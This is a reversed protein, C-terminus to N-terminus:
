EEDSNYFKLDLSSVLEILDYRLRFHIEEDRLDQQINEPVNVQTHPDSVWDPSIARGDQKILMNHLIICAYVISHISKKNM